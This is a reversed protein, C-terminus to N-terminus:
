QITYVARCKEWPEHEPEHEQILGRTLSPGECLWVQKPEPACGTVVYLWIGLSMIILYQGM